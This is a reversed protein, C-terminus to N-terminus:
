AVAAAVVAAGAVVLAVLIRQSEAPARGVLLALLVGALAAPARVAAEVWGTAAPGAAVLAAALGFPVARWGRPAVLLVAVAALGASVAALVPGVAVAPGLVAQAGAVSALSPSGWRVTAALVALVCVAFRRADRATLGLLAATVFVDGTSLLM